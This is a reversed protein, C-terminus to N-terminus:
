FKVRIYLGKYRMFRVKIGKLKYISMDFMALLIFYFSVPKSHKIERYLKYTFYM